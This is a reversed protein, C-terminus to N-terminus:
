GGDPPPEKLLVERVKPQRAFGTSITAAADRLAAALGPEETEFPDSCGIVEEVQTAM